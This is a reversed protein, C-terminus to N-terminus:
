RMFYLDREAERRLTLGRFVKGGAKNWKVFELAISPDNPNVNLKRLLTSKSLNTAGLNYTFSVLADFQNQTLPKKVLRLVDSEYGKLVEKLMETAQQETMPKDRLTVKVRSPLYYTFGYGITPIGIPDKYPKSFFGEFRKILSIGKDSIRM